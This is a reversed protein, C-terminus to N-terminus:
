DRPSPSTYLLCCRYAAIPFVSVPSYTAESYNIESYGHWHPTVSHWICIGSRPELEWETISIDPGGARTVRASRRQREGQPLVLHLLHRTVHPSCGYFSPEGHPWGRELSENGIAPMCKATPIQLLTVAPWPSSSMPLPHMSVGRPQLWLQPDGVLGNLHTKLFLDFYIIKWSFPIPFMAPKHPPPALLSWPKQGQILYLSFLWYLPAGGM